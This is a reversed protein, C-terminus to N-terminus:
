LPVCLWSVSSKMWMVRCWTKSSTSSWLRYLCNNTTDDRSRGLSILFCDVLLWSSTRWFGLRSCMQNPTTSAYWCIVSESAYAGLVELTYIIMVFLSMICSALFSITKYTSVHSLSGCFLHLYYCSNGFVLGAVDQWCREDEAVWYSKNRCM